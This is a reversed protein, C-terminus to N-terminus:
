KHKFLFCEIKNERQLCVNLDSINLWVKIEIFHTIADCEEVLVIADTLKSSHTQTFAPM